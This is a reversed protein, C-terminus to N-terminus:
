RISDHNLKLNEITMNLEKFNRYPLDSLNSFALRLSVRDAPTLHGRLINAVQDYSTMKQCDITTFLSPDKKCSCPLIERYMPCRSTGVSLGIISLLLASM